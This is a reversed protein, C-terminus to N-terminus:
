MYNKSEYFAFFILAISENLSFNLESVRSIFGINEYYIFRASLFAFCLTGFSGILLGQKGRLFSM